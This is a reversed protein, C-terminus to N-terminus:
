NRYLILKKAAAAAAAIPANANSFKGWIHLACILVICFPSFFVSSIIYYCLDLVEPFQPDIGCVVIIM